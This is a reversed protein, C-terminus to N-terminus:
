LRVIAGLRSFDGGREEGGIFRPAEREDKPSLEGATFSDIKCANTNQAILGVQEAQAINGQCVWFWGAVTVLRIILIMIFLHYRFRASRDTLFLLNKKSFTHFQTIKTDLSVQSRTTLKLNLNTRNEELSAVRVVISIVRDIFDPM